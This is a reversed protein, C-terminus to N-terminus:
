GTHWSCARTGAMIDIAVRVQVNRYVASNSALKHMVMHGFLKLYKHKNKYKNTISQHRHSVTTDASMTYGNLWKQHNCELLTNHKFQAYALTWNTNSLALFSCSCSLSTDIRQCWLSTSLHPRQFHRVMSIDLCSISPCSFAPCTEPTQIPRCPISKSKATSGKLRKSRRNWSHEVDFLLSLVIRSQLSLWQTKWRQGLCFFSARM